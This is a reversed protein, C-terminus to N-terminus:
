TTEIEPEDILLPQLFREEKEVHSRLLAELGFLDARLAAVDAKTWDHRLLDRAAVVRHALDRIQHHEFAMMRTAWPTGARRDFEPYLWTEEWAAHPLLVEDLWDVVDLMAFCLDPVAISGVAVAVEHIRHIGPALERHEREEFDHEAIAGHPFQTM